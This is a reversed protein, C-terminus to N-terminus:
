GAENAREKEHPCYGVYGRACNCNHCLVRIHLNKPFGHARLWQYLYTGGLKDIEHGRKRGGIHDIALFELRKEGCCVCKGGYAKMTAMKLRQRYNKNWVIINAAHRKRYSRYAATSKWKPLKSEQINSAQIQHLRFLISPNTASSNELVQWSQLLSAGGCVTSSKEEPWDGLRYTLKEAFSLAPM